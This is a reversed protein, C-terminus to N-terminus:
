AAKFAAAIAQWDSTSDEPRVAQYLSAHAAGCAQARAKLARGLEAGNGSIAVVDMLGDPVKAVMADIEGRRMLDSLTKGVEAFGHYDLFRRYSPTSGYFAVQRRVSAESKAREAEDSGMVAFVPVHLRIAGADRDRRAAGAVLSPRVVDNIYGPSHMPHAQFGDAVEGAAECMRENVGALYVPIDPHDIPGPNFFDNILAFRYFRGAHSPREGTQFTHWIARVCDIYDTVRAAPHDFDMSFRREVHARVQTGLGLVMRGGSAAQLDWAVQATSFPSRAFAVAINTGVHLRETALAAQALPLYPDHVSEFSWVTDFGIAEYRRADEAVEALNLPRLGVDFRISM